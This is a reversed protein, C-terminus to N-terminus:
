LGKRPESPGGRGAQPVMERHPAGPVRTVPPLHPKQTGRGTSGEGRVGQASTPSGPAAAPSCRNGPLASSLLPAQAAGQPFHSRGSLMEQLEMGPPVPRPALAPCAARGHMGGWTGAQSSHPHLAWSAGCLGAGAESLSGRPGPHSQATLPWESRPAEAEEDTFHSWLGERTTLLSLHPCLGQGLSWGPFGGSLM